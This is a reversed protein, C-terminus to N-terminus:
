SAATAWNPLQGLDTLEARVLGDFVEPFLLAMVRWLPHDTGVQTHTTKAEAIIRRLSPKELLGSLPTSAVFTEVLNACHKFDSGSLKSNLMSLVAGTGSFKTVYLIPRGAEASHAVSCLTMFLVAANPRALDIRNQWFDREWQWLGPVRAKMDSWVLEFQDCYEPSHPNQRRAANTANWWALRDTKCRQKIAESRCDEVFVSRGTGTQLEDLAILRPERWGGQGDEMLCKLVLTGRQLSATEAEIDFVFANGRQMAVVEHFGQPMPNELTNFIWVLGIGEADYFVHRAAIEPAFPKSLQVELAFRGLGNLEVFVDPWRGREHIAPRLYTNVSTQLCRSDAKVLQEITTCLRRHLASEQHGNYQAARADDERLNEGEYWPCQRSGEPYHAYMPSHGYRDARVRIFVGSECIRCRALPRLRDLRRRINIQGRLHEWEARPMELLQEIGVAGRPLEFDAMRITRQLKVM